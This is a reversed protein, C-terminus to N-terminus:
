TPIYQKIYERGQHEKLQKERRLAESRTTFSEKLILRWEGKFRATYGKIRHLNHEIVRREINNTQGIYIKKHQENYIVYVYFM